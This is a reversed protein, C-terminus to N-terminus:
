AESDGAGADENDSDSDDSDGASRPRSTGNARPAARSIDSHLKDEFKRMQEALPKHVLNFAAGEERLSAPKDRRLTNIRTEHTNLATMASRCFAVCQLSHSSLRCIKVQAGTNHASSGAAEPRLRATTAPMEQEEVQKCIFALDQQAPLRMGEAVTIDWRAHQAVLGDSQDPSHDTAFRTVAMDKSTYYKPATKVALSLRLPSSQVCMRSPRIALNWKLRESGTAVGQIFIAGTSFSVKLDLEQGEKFGLESFARDEGGLSISSLKCNHQNLRGAGAVAAREALSEVTIEEFSSAGDDDAAGELLDSLHHPNVVACETLPVDVTSGSMLTVQVMEEGNENDYLGIICGAGHVGCNVTSGIEPETLYEAHAISDLMQPLGVAGAYCGGGGEIGSRHGNQEHRLRRAVASTKESLEHFQASRMCARLTHVLLAAQRRISRGLLDPTDPLASFIGGLVGVGQATAKLMRRMLGNFVECAHEFFAYLRLLGGLGMWEDQEEMDRVYQFLHHAVYHAYPTNVDFVVSLMRGLVMGRLLFIPWDDAKTDKSCMLGILSSLLVWVTTICEHMHRVNEDSSHKFAAFLGDDGDAQTHACVDTFQLLARAREHRCLHAHAAHAAHVLM